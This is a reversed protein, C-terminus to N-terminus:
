VIFIFCWAHPYAIGQDMFVHDRKYCGCFCISTSIAIMGWHNPISVDRMQECSPTKFVRNPRIYRDILTETDLPNPQFYSGEVIGHYMNICPKEKFVHWNKPTVRLGHIQEHGSGSVQQKPWGALSKFVHVVQLDHHYCDTM